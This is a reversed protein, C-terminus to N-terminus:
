LRANELVCEIHKNFEGVYMQYISNQQNISSYCFSSIHLASSLAVTRIPVNIM